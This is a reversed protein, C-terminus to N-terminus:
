PPNRLVKAPSTAVAERARPRTNNTPSQTRFNVLQPLSGRFTHEHTLAFGPGVSLARLRELSSHQCALVLGIRPITLRHEPQLAEPCAPGAM